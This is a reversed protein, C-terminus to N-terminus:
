GTEEMNYCIICLGDVAKLIKKRVEGGKQDIIEFESYGYFGDCKKCILPIKIKM